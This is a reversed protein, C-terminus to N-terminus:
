PKVEVGCDQMENGWYPNRLEGGLQIWKADAPAGPWLDHTMPCRFIKLEPFRSKMRVALTAIEQSWPLFAKRLEKIDSNQVPAPTKILSFPVPPLKALAANATALDDKALAESLSAVATLYAKIEPSIEMDPMTPAVTVMADLQAQGDILMNGTLVVREGEKLGDLVEWCIGGPRGLKVERRQYAGAGKEVYVRPTGGPWLVASRPVAIVEPADVEVVGEAYTKNKIRREPNEIVVRIRSSRTTEDLNPSIFAVKAKLTEGPLSPTTISILQGKQLLPLDQEYATFMFWMKTFDAIEFLREGEKVFQGESVYSKVVTGTLPSLIGFYIDDPQRQPIAKIQEWVLGYQELRRKTQDVTLGGQELAIKY